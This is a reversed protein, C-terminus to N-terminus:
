IFSLAEVGIFLVPFSFQSLNTGMGTSHATWQWPKPNTDQTPLSYKRPNYILVIITKRCM